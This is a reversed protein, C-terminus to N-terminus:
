ATAQAKRGRFDDAGLLPLTANASLSVTDGRNETAPASLQLSQEISIPEGHLRSFLELVKCMSGQELIEDLRVSLSFPGHLENRWTYRLYLV